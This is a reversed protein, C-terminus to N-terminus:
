IKNRRKMITKLFENKIKGCKKANQYDKPL